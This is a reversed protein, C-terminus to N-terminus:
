WLVWYSLYGASMPNLNKEKAHRLRYLKKREEIFKKDYSKYNRFLTDEYNLNGFYIKENNKFTVVYKYPYKNAYEVNLVIDKLKKLSEIKKKIVSLPVLNSM